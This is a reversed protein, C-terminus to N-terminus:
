SDNLMNSVIIKLENYTAWKAKLGLYTPYQPWDKYDIGEAEANKIMDSIESYEKRTEAMRQNLHEHLDSLNMTPVNYVM